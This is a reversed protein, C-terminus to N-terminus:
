IEEFGAVEVSFPWTHRLQAVLGLLVQYLLASALLYLVSAQTLPISPAKGLELLEGGAGVALVAPLHVRPCGVRLLDLEIIKM